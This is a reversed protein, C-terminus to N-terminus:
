LSAAGIGKSKNYLYLRSLRYLTLCIYTKLVSWKTKPLTHEKRSFAVEEKGM